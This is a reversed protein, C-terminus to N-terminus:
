EVLSFKHKPKIQSGFNAGKSDSAMLAKHKAPTVGHYKYTKGAKFKVQLELKGADYGIAEIHGSEVPVMVM